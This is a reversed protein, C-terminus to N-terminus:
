DGLPRTDAEAEREALERERRELEALRSLLEANTAADPSQPARKRKVDNTPRRVDTPGEVAYPHWPMRDARPNDGELAIVGNGDCDDCGKGGCKPCVVDYSAM